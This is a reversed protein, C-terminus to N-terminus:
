KKAPVAAATKSDAKAPAKKPDAPKEDGPKADAPKAEEPKPTAKAKAEADRAKQAAIREAKTKVPFGSEGKAQKEALEAAKWLGAAAIKPASAYRDQIKAYTEIAGDFDKKAEQIRGV